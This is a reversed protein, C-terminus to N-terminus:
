RLRLKVLSYEVDSKTIFRAAFVSAAYIGAFVFFLATKVVLNDVGGLVSAGFGVLLVVVHSLSVYAFNLKAQSLLVMVALGAFAGLSMGYAMSDLYGLPGRVAFYFAATVIIMITYSVVMERVMRAPILVSSKIINMFSYFAFSFVMPLILPLSENYKDGVVLTTIEKAWYVSILVVFITLSFIKNFNESFLGKFEQLNREYKDSLVPLNVDTAADSIAMLKKGYLLGFGFIGVVTGDVALGLLNPGLKEWNTYIIKVIYIGLSVSLIDKFLRKFDSVSPLAFDSVIPRLAILALSLTSFANFLVLAYFYGFDKYLYVLPIYLFASVVAIVVQYTFMQGFRQTGAIVSNLISQVAQILLVFAYMRLLPALSDQSYVGALRDSFFYLGVAIPLSVMYRIVASTFFVKFVESNDKATSVERTSASALGLHQYIGLAGGISLALQVIGWEGVTLIRLIFLSQILGLVM